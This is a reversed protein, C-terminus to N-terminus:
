CYCYGEILINSQMYVGKDLDCTCQERWGGVKVEESYNESSESLHNGLNYNEPQSLSFKGNKQYYSM